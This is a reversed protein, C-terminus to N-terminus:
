FTELKSWADCPTGDGYWEPTEGDKEILKALHERLDRLSDENVGLQQSRRIEKALCREHNDRPYIYETDLHKCEPGWQFRVNYQEADWLASQPIDMARMADGLSAYFTAGAAGDLADGCLEQGVLLLLTDSDINETLDLHTLLSNFREKIFQHLCWPEIAGTEVEYAGDAGCPEGSDTEWNRIEVIELSKRTNPGWASHETCVRAFVAGFVAATVDGSIQQWNGYEVSKIDGWRWNADHMTALHLRASLAKM